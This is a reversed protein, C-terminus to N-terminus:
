VERVDSRAPGWGTYKVQSYRSCIDYGLTPDYNMFNMFIEDPQCVEIAEEMQRHSFSFLRRERQTVTTKEPPIGIDAWMMEKQDGYVDGSYGDQTSGVRIPHVRATGVVTKLLPLPIMMDAMFRAPTCDRSTCYPWFGANMGLSYGQAGEALVSRSSALIGTWTRNNALMLTINLSACFAHLEIFQLNNHSSGIRHDNRPDREMKSVIAAMSGQMTSSIGSLTAKETAVHSPNLIVADEHICLIKGDLLDASEATELILREMSFVSQPGIMVTRLRPSVIGNPIVKHIWTRGADDIYTHGANPMNANVVTDPEDRMALYGAILGKGTSGFQLDIVLTTNKM